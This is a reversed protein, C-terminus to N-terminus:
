KGASLSCFTELATNAVAEPASDAQVIGERFHNIKGALEEHTSVPIVQHVLSEFMYKEFEEPSIGGPHDLYFNFVYCTFAAEESQRLDTLRQMDFTSLWTEFGIDWGETNLRHLESKPPTHIPKFETPEIVGRDVQAAEAKADRMWAELDRLASENHFADAVVPAVGHVVDSGGGGGCGVAVLLSASLLVAFSAVRKVGRRALRRNSRDVRNGGVTRIWRSM